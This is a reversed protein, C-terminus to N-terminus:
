LRYFLIHSGNPVSCAKMDHSLIYSLASLAPSQGNGAQSILIKLLKKQITKIGQSESSLAIVTFCLSARLPIIADGPLWFFFFTLM